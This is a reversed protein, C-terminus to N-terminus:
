SLTWCLCSRVCCWTVLAGYSRIGQPSHGKELSPPRQRLLSSWDTGRDFSREGKMRYRESWRLPKAETTQTENKTVLIRIFNLRFSIFSFVFWCRGGNHETKSTKEKATEDIERYNNSRNLLMEVADVFLCLFHRLTKKFRRAYKVTRATRDKLYYANLHAALIEENGKWNDKM